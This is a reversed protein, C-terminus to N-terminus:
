LMVELLAMVELGEQVVLDLLDLLVELEVLVWSQEM